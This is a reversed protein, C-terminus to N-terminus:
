DASAAPLQDDLAALIRYAAKVRESNPYNKNAFLAVGIGQSPVFAVYAGFGNTSGTKNFLADNVPPRPPSLKEIEHAQLTMETANGALLQDLDTPYAYIEWGLGQTMGAVKYYGVHTAAIAAQLPDDLGSANMNAEIFGLMDSASMKVGYAESDLVGPSVRIAKGSQSYGYAYNDAENKPVTIFSHSLGLAPFLKQQMLDDFPWGMAKAAAYGFLGISPNSYLRHTGPAYSPKWNKYYGVMKKHDTVEDPFQLPLGGAMYTGLDLMSAEALRSGALEPLFKSPSDAFSLDGSAEAYAALTATFTKSVSGIEFLTADTVKQGSAKSAVGYNFVYRKGKATVAIAMGSIDNKAMLPGAVADVVRGLGDQQEAAHAGTVLILSAAALIGFTSQPINRM